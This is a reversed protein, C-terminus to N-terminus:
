AAPEEIRLLLAELVRDTTIGEAEAEFNRIIRHRLAPRAVDRIDQCSVNVRDALL